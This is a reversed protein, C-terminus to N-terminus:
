EVSIKHVSKEERLVCGCVWKTKNWTYKDIQFSIVIKRHFSFLFLLYQLRHTNRTASLKILIQNPWANMWEMWLLSSFFFRTILFCQNNPTNIFHLLLVEPTDSKDSLKFWKDSSVNESHFCECVCVWKALM